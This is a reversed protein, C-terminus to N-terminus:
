KVLMMKKTQIFDGAKIRYFYVGSPLYEAYWTLEYIGASKEEDVLKEMENGLIDFVKIVVNSTLPISYKIITNPNFPNPFNQELSYTKPVQSLYDEIGSVALPSEFAGMDPVSGAPNPRPNGEIDYLPCYCMVGNVEISDVATGICPSSDDLHYDLILPNEFVPDADLNGIGWNLTCVLPDAIYVSAEGGEADCYNVFLTGGINNYTGL